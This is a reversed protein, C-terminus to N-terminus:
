GTTRNELRRWDFSAMTNIIRRGVAMTLFFNRNGYSVKLVEQITPWQTASVAGASGLM